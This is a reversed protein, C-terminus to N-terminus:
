LGLLSRLEALLTGAERDLRHHTIRITRYGAVLRASDYARDRTFAGRHRHFEWSDLEAILKARPWITDVEHGLVLVNHVPPPVRNRHLFAAFRDELPSRTETAARAEILLPRIRRLARRGRGREVVRQMAALRLLKLRDAEEWAYRLRNADVV